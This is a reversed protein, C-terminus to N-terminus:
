QGRYPECAIGDGDADLTDRYGPEDVYLPAVGALRAADCNQYYAGAPPSNERGLNRADRVVGQVNAPMKDTNLISYGALLAFGGVIVPYVFDDYKRGRRGYRERPRPSQRRRRNSSTLDGMAM